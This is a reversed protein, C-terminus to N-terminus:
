INNLYEDIKSALESYGGIHEGQWIIQPIGEAEPFLERFSRSVEADEVELYEHVIELSECLQKSRLCHFCTTSGFITVM